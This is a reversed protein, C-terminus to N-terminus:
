HQTNKKLIKTNIYKPIYFSYKKKETFGDKINYASIHLIHHGKGNVLDIKRSANCDKICRKLFQFFSFLQIDSVKM